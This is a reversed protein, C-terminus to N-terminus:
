KCKLRKLVTKCIVSSNHTRYVSVPHCWLNQELNKPVLIQCIERRKGIKIKGSISPKAGGRGVPM